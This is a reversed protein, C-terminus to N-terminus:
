KRITDARWLRSNYISTSQVTITAFQWALFLLSIGQALQQEGQHSPSFQVNDLATECYASLALTIGKPMEDSFVGMAESTLSVLRLFADQTGADGAPCRAAVLQVFVMCGPLPFLVTGSVAAKQLM